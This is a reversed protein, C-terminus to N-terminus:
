KYGGHYVCNPLDRQIYVESLRIKQDPTMKCAGCSGPCNKFMFESNIFCDNNEKWKKCDERLDKCTFDVEISRILKDENLYRQDIDEDTINADILEQRIDSTTKQAERLMKGIDRPELYGWIPMIENKTKNAMAAALDLDVNTIIEMDKIAVAGGDKRTYKRDLIYNTSPETTKGLMAQSRPVPTYDAVVVKRLGGLGEYTTYYPIHSPPELPVRDYQNIKDTVVPVTKKMSVVDWDRILLLVVIFIIAALIIRRDM